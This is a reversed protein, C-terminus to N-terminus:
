SLPVSALTTYEPGDDTLVSETLRVDGVALTGADPDHERVARQVADKPGAHRMRALTVHPTFAHDDAEFGLDTTRAEVAEHLATLQESGSRVGLYVVSIYAMSPFVGLGGLEAEFPDVGAAAVGSEVADVIAPVRDPDTDGLFQLTVHGQEPDTRDLGDARPLVDQVAAIDDAHGDCDVSVFLRKSM